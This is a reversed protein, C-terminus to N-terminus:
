IDPSNISALGSSDSGSNLKSLSTSLVTSAGVTIDDRGELKAIVGIIAAIVENHDQLRIIREDGIYKAWTVEVGSARFASGSCPRLLFFEWKALLDPIIAELPIDIEPDVGNHDMLFQRKILEYPAEDGIIFAYGKGRGKDFQSAEVQNALFYMALEYSETNQGGGNGELYMKELHADILKDDIEFESVQLPVRDSTADGIVGTLVQPYPLVKESLITGYLNPMKELVDYASRGMSGTGDIFVVVPVATPCDSSDMCERKNKLKLNLSDDLAKRAGSYIRSSTTAYTAKPDRMSARLRAADVDYHGSGM